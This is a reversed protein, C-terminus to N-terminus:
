NIEYRAAGPHGGAHIEPCGCTRRGQRVSGKFRNYAALTLTLQAGVRALGRFKSQRLGAGQKTWGFVEKIRKRVVQSIAYGPHRTTRADIKTKRRKGTKSVHDQVAVHPTVKRGRLDKVFAEVDYGKDGALAIEAELM